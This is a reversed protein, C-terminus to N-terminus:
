TLPTGRLGSLIDDKIEIMQRPRGALGGRIHMTSVEVWEVDRILVPGDSGELYGTTPITLLQGWRRDLAQGGVRSAM